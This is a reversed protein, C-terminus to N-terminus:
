PAIPQNDFGDQSWSAPVIEVPFPCDHAPDHRGHCRHCPAFTQVLPGKKHLLLTIPNDGRWDSQAKVEYGHNLLENLDELCQQRYEDNTGQTTPYFKVVAIM